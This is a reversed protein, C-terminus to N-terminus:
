ENPCNQLATFFTVVANCDAFISKPIFLRASNVSDNGSKDTGYESIKLIM